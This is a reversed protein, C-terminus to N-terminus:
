ASASALVMPPMVESKWLEDFIPKSDVLNQHNGGGGHLVLCLPLPGSQDSVPPLIVAYPVGEPAFDVSLTSIEVRSNEMKRRHKPDFCTTLNFNQNCARKYSGCAPRAADSRWRRPGCKNM